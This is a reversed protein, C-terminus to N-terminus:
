PSLRENMIISLKPACAPRLSGIKVYNTTANEFRFVPM